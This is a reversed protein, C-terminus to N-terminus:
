ISRHPNFRSSGSPPTPRKHRIRKVRSRILALESAVPRANCLLATAYCRVPRAARIHDAKPTDNAARETAPLITPTSHPAGFPGAVPRHVNAKAEEQCVPRKAPATRVGMNQVTVPDIKFAASDEEGEYVPVMDMGMSDKRLSQSIEGLMM